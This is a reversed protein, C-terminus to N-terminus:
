CSAFPLSIGPSPHALFMVDELCRKTKTEVSKSGPFDRDTIYGCVLNVLSDGNPEVVNTLARSM